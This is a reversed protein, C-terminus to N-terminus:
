RVAGILWCVALTPVVGFAPANPEPGGCQPFSIDFGQPSPAGRTTAAPEVTVTVQRYWWGKSPAHAYVSLHNSGPVLQNSSVVASWGSATWDARGFTSAVDPRDQALFAHTLLTGGNGMNGLFIEVDDAGAWGAASRDVFWGALQVAGMSTISANVIPADIVGAYTNDGSAGPGPLWGEGLAAVPPAFNLSSLLLLAALLLHRM